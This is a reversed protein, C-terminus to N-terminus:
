LYIGLPYAEEGHLGMDLGREETERDVKTVTVRSILWLMGYRFVFAWASCFVAAAVQKGFFGAGGFLLGNASAPNWATTAFVGLLIIGPVGGVGHVGWVGM